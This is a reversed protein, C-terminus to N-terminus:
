NRSRNAPSTPIQGQCPELESQSLLSNLKEPRVARHDIQFRIAVSMEEPGVAEPSKITVQGLM